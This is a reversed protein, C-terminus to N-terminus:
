KRNNKKQTKKKERIINKMEQKKKSNEQNRKHNEKNGLTKTQTKRKERIIKKM